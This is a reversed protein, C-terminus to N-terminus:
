AVLQKSHQTQTFEFPIISVIGVLVLIYVKLKKM